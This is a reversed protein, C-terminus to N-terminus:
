KATEYITAASLKGEFIAREAIQKAEPLTDSSGSIFSWGNQDSNDLAPEAYSLYEHQVAANMAAIMEERSGYKGSQIRFKKPEKDIELYEIKNSVNNSGYCAYTPEEGIIGAVINSIGKVGM